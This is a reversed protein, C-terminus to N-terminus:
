NRRFTRVNSLSGFGDSSGFGGARTPPSLDVDPDTQVVEYTLAGGGVQWIGEFTADDPSDQSLEVLAPESSRDVTYDGSSNFARSSNRRRLEYTGDDNFTATVSILDDDADVESLDDGESIWSGIIARQPDPTYEGADPRDPNTGTPLEFEATTDTTPTSGTEEEVPACAALALAILSIRFASM